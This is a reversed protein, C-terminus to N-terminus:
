AGCAVPLPTLTGPLGAVVLAYRRAPGLHRETRGLRRLVQWPASWASRAARARVRCAASRRLDLVPGVTPFRHVALSGGAGPLGVATIPGGGVITRDDFVHKGHSRPM